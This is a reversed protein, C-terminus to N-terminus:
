PRPRHGLGAVAAASMAELPPDEGTWLRFAHAAQHILMGLGNVTRLGQARAAALLPTVAPHYVLDVVVQGAGLRAVEFPLPEPEGATTVVVGMGLPTANVVLDARDLDAPTGVHASSGGLAAARAAPDPSRNVVAV